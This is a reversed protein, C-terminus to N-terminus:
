RHLVLATAVVWAPAALCLSDVRRVAPLREGGAPLQGLRVGLPALVAVAAFVVWPRDGRFPPDMVAAVFVAVVAVSLIGFVVGAVGGLPSRGHGMLFSGADYALTAGVLALALSSGQHRALVISTAALTPMLAAVLKWAVSRLPRASAAFGSALVLAAVAGFSVVLGALAAVVGALAILPDLVSATLAAVLALSPPRRGSGSRRRTRTRSRARSRPRGEAARVGSATAVAAVPILVVATLFSSAVLAGM